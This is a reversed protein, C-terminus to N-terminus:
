RGWFQQDIMWTEVKLAPEKEGAEPSFSFKNNDIMWDEVKLPQESYIEEDLSFSGFNRSDIMWPEIELAKENSVEELFISSIAKVDSLAVFNNESYIPLTESENEQNVMMIAMKGYSNNVLVQKWFGNASVTLSVLVLSAVVAFAKTIYVRFKRSGTEQANNTTKM